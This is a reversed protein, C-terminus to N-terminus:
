PILGKGDIARQVQEALADATHEPNIDRIPSLTAAMRMSLAQYAPTAPRVAATTLQDRIIAYQPYKAQFAPDDYLSARVAPLGGEVSSFRQNDTSRLCRLAEFAEGRHRTTKAVALNLGGITVRAPEGDIVSPYPAFGFVQRSATYATDFQEDSPSFSGTATIAGTLGPDENLKLFPVGGKVANELMSPLVFPWNVELAAKGQELALRATGEDTQTISPDAGPAAAVDRMIQLARVTAARHEPTDTLTVTKGDDSLVRGGASVLLTNFWVVLGEYQKAQVAIWSPGGDRYLRGAETLMDAWSAPPADMLDARYWLLQTNTTIPAAYLRGQWTATALPGPLTDATADDEALGAPDDTLPLAWGAEAFEATWVVDLAMLDLTRENGTLRRALQLRQDDAGKPLTVQKIRFRGDFTDNCHAAVAAFTNADGAPTYFTVVTGNEGSGCGTLTAAATVLAVPVALARALRRRAPASRAANAVM